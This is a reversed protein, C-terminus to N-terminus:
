WSQVKLSIKRLSYCLAVVVDSVVFNRDLIVNRELPMACDGLSEANGSRHCRVRRVKCM